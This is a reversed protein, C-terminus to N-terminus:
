KNGAAAAKKGEAAKKDAQAKMEAQQKATWPPVIDNMRAYAISQGLHEHAHSLLLMYGGRVTTKMGFFEVAREFDADSASMLAQEMHAFSEKLAKQIDAKKTISKEYTAFEFGAPPTVGWFSPLGYNAAAVHMFVEGSTRVDKSPRFSYKAEPTAEALMILKEEADKIWAIMDGKVGAGTAAAPEHALVPTVALAGLTLGLATVVM